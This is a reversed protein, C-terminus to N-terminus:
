EFYVFSLKRVAYKTERERNGREGERREWVRGSFSLSLARASFTCYSRYSLISVYASTHQCVQLDRQVHLVVQVILCYSSESKREGERERAQLYASFTCYLRYLLFIRLTKSKGYV